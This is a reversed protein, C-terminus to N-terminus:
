DTLTDTQPVSPRPNSGWRRGLFGRMFILPKKLKSGDGKVTFNMFFILSFYSGTFLTESKIYHIDVNAFIKKRM